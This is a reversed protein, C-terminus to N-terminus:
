FERKDIAYNMGQKLHWGVKGYVYHDNHLTREVYLERQDKSAVGSESNIIHFEQEVIQNCIVKQDISTQESKNSIRSLTSTCPDIGVSEHQSNSQINKQERFLIM